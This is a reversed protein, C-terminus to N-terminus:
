KVLTKVQKVQKAAEYNSYMEYAVGVLAKAEVTRLYEANLDNTRVRDLGDADKFIEILRKARDKDEIKYGNIINDMKEDDISHAMIMAMLIKRDDCELASYLKELKYAARGGHNDDKYDNIRGVDHYKAAEVLLFRDKVELNHLASLMMVFVFVRENHEIGHMESNYLVESKINYFQRFSNKVGTQGNVLISMKELSLQRVGAAAINANYSQEDYFMLGSSIGRLILEYM